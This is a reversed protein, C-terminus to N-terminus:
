ELENPMVLLSEVSPTNEPLFGYEKARQYYRKIGEYETISYREFILGPVRERIIKLSQVSNLNNHELYETLGNIVSPDRQMMQAAEHYVKAMKKATDKNNNWWEEQAVMVVFPMPLSDENDRWVDLLRSISKFNGTSILNAGFPYAITAADVYGSKLDQVIEDPSGFILQLDKEPELGEFKFVMLAAPYLATTKHLTGVKKGKLDAISKIHSDVPVIIDYSLNQAPFIIKLKRGKQAETYTSLLGVLSVQYKGEFLDKEVEGPIANVYEIDLGYKKDIEYKKILMSQISTPAGLVIPTKLKILEEQQDGGLQDFKVTLLNKYLFTGSFVLILLVVFFLIVRAPM